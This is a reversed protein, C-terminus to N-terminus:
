AEPRRVSAARSSEITRRHELRSARRIRAERQRRRQDDTDPLIPPVPRTAGDADIAVM